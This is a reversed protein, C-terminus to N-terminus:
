LMEFGEKGKGMFGGFLAFHGNGSTDNITRAVENGHRMIFDLLPM